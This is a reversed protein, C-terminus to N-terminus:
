AQRVVSVVSSAAGVGVCLVFSEFNPQDSHTRVGNRRRVRGDQSVAGDRLVVRCEVFSSDIGKSAPVILRRNGLHMCPVSERDDREDHCLREVSSCGSSVSCAVFPNGPRRRFERFRGVESSLCSEHESM